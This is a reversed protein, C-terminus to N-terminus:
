PLPTAPRPSTSVLRQQLRFYRQALQVDHGIQRRLAEAGPFKMEPRLWKLFKIEINTTESLALPRFNLLHTEIAFSPEGFTPRVGINTVSDFSENALHTQTIYVGNAPVLEPYPALNITPVTYRSGYGRGSAPAGFISFNRGLLTRARGVRGQLLLQRIRSSSVTEGRLQMERYAVVRFGFKQGFEALRDVNGEARHGFHFSAGEHVERAQLKEAIIRQAFDQPATASLESTFPLVLAADLGTSELLKLKLPLPAILKPSAEPRLVRTPHPDFTVAVAQAGLARARTVVEGLVKRHGCHVGDFNGISLVTPGFTPPIEDLHRFVRM